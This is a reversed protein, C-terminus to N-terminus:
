PQCLERAGDRLRQAAARVEPDDLREPSGEAADRLAEAVLVADDRLPEPVAALLEEAASEATLPARDDLGSLARALTVCFHVQASVESVADHAQAVRERADACGTGILVLAALAAITFPRMQPVTGAAQSRGAPAAARGIASIRVRPTRAPWPCACTRVM